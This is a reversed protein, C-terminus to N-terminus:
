LPSPDSFYVELLHALTRTCDKGRSLLDRNSLISQASKELIVKERGKSHHSIEQNKVTLDQYPELLYFGNIDPLCNLVM